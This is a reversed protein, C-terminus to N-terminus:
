TLVFYIESYDFKWFERTLSKVLIFSLSVFSFFIYAFSPLEISLCCLSYIEVRPLMLIYCFKSLHLDFLYNHSKAFLEKSKEKKRKLTGAINFWCVTKFM